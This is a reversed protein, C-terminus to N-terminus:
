EGENDLYVETSFSTAIANSFKGDSDVDARAQILYWPATMAPWAPLSVSVPTPPTDGAGGANVLYRYQVAQNVVVNLTQFAAGDVHTGFRSAWGMAVPGFTSAPYWDTGTSVDMYEQNEARYSEEAARIAQIMTVAEVSKSSSVSKRFSAIGIMALVAVLTLVVM